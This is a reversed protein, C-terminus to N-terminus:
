SVNLPRVEVSTSFQLMAGPAMPEVDTITLGTITFSGYRNLACFHLILIHLILNFWHVLEHFHGFAENKARNAFNICMMCVQNIISSRYTLDYASFCEPYGIGLTWYCTSGLGFSSFILFLFFTKARKQM